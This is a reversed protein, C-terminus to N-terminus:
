DNSAHRSILRTFGAVFTIMNVAIASGAVLWANRPAPADAKTDFSADSSRSDVILRSHISSPQIRGAKRVRTPLLQGAFEAVARSSESGHMRRTANRSARTACSISAPQDWLRPTLIMKRVLPRSRGSFPEWRSGCERAAPRGYWKVLGLSIATLSRLSM